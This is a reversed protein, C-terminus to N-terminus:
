VYRSLRLGGYLGSIKCTSGYPIRTGTSKVTFEKAFVYGTFLGLSTDEDGFFTFNVQAYPAMFWTSVKQKFDKIEPVKLQNFRLGGELGVAMDDTWQYDIGAGLAFGFGLSPNIETNTGPPITQCFKGWTHDITSRATFIFDRIYYHYAASLGIGGMTAVNTERRASSETATVYAASQMIDDVKKRIAAESIGSAGVVILEVEKQSGSKQAVVGARTLFDASLNLDNITRALQFNELEGGPSFNQRPGVVIRIKDASEFVDEDMVRAWINCGHPGLVYTRNQELLLRGATTGGPSLATHVSLAADADLLADKRSNKYAVSHNGSKSHKQDHILDFLIQINNRFNEYEPNTTSTDFSKDFTQAYLARLMIESASGYKAPDLFLAGLDEEAENLKHYPLKVFKVSYKPLIPKKRYEMKSHLGKCELSLSVQHGLKKATALCLMLLM